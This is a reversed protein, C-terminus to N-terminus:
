LGLLGKKKYRVKLLTVCNQENRVTEVSRILYKKNDHIKSILEGFTQWDAGNVLVKTQAGTCLVAGFSSADKKGETVGELMSKFEEDPIILTKPADTVTTAPAEKIPPPAIVQPVAVANNVPAEAAKNSPLITITKRYTKAPDNDLKVEIVRTGAAPFIYIASPERQVPFDPANLVTWEYSQATGAATYRVPDGVMPADPGFILSSDDSSATVPATTLQRVLINVSETCKGNVMATVLYSGDTMFAHVVSAGTAKPSGDGFDWEVTKAKAMDAHFSLKEAVYFVADPQGAAAKVTIMVTRCVVSNNAVKFGLLGAALVAVIAATLWVRYDLGAPRRTFITEARM